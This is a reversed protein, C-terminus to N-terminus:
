KEDRMHRAMERRAQRNPPVVIRPQEPMPQEVATVEIEGEAADDAISTAINYPPVQEGEALERFLSCYAVFHLMSPAGDIDVRKVIVPLVSDLVARAHDPALAWADLRLLFQGQRLALPFKPVEPVPAPFNVGPIGRQEYTGNEYDGSGDNIYWSGRRYDPETSPMAEVM